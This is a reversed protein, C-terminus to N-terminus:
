LLQLGVQRKGLMAQPEGALVVGGLLARADVLVQDLRLVPQFGFGRAQAM